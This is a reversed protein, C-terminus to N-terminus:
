AYWSCHVPRGDWMSISGYESSIYPKGDYWQVRKQIPDGIYEGPRPTTHGSMFCTEKTDQAVQRLVITSASKVQVVEYFDVNTQEYGWSDYMIDGPKFPLAALAPAKRKNKREQRNAMIRLQEAKYQEIYRSRDEPTKFFYWWDAKSRTGSYAKGCYKGNSEYLAIEAGIEPIKQITSNEPYYRAEKRAEATNLRYM